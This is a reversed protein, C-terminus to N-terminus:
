SRLGHRSGSCIRMAKPLTKVAGCGFIVEQALANGRSRDVMGVQNLFVLGLMVADKKSIGERGCEDRALAERLVAVLPGNGSLFVAHEDSHEQARKTAINLGALTKGAGPVRTVLCISKRKAVKSRGIIEAICDATLGLNQAGADWRAIEEVGHRQYLAQAAQV